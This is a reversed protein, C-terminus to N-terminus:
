RSSTATSLSASHRPPLRGSGPFPASASPNPLLALVGIQAVWFWGVTVVVGRAAFSRRVWPAMFSGLLGGVGVFAFM